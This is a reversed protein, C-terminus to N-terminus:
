ILALGHIPPVEKNMNWIFAETREPGMRKELFIMENQADDIGAADKLCDEFLKLRNSVDIKKYRTQATKPWGRNLVEPFYFRVMLFLPASKDELDKMEAPFKRVLTAITEKKYRAGEATLRRGGGIMKNGVRRLPINEYANNMSPPLGDLYIRVM